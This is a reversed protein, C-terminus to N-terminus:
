EPLLNPVNNAEDITLIDHYKYNLIWIAKFIPFAPIKYKEPWLKWRQQRSGRGLAVDKLHLVYLQYAEPMGEDKKMSDDILTILFCNVM